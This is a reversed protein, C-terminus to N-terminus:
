YTLYLIVIQSNIVCYYASAEFMSATAWVNVMSKPWSYGIRSRLETSNNKLRRVANQTRVYICVACSASVVIEHTPTKEVCM